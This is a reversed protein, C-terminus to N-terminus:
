VAFSSGCGCSNTANPNVFKFGSSALSTFHDLTVGALYKMSFPDVFVRVGDQEFVCDDALPGGEIAMRYSFGSCGGPVARIRLGAIDSAGAVAKISKRVEALASETLTIM